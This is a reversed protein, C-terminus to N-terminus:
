DKAPITKPGRFVPCSDTPFLLIALLTIFLISFFKGKQWDGKKAGCLLIIKIFCFHSHSM